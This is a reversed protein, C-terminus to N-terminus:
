RTGARASRRPSSAPSRSLRAQGFVDASSPARGSRSRPPPMVRSKQRGAKRLFPSRSTRLSAAISASLRRPLTSGRMSSATWTSGFWHGSPHPSRSAASREIADLADGIARPLRRPPALAARRASRGPCAGEPERGLAVSLQHHSIALPSTLLTRRVSATGRARAPLVVHRADHRARQWRGAPRCQDCSGDRVRPARRSPPTRSASRLGHGDAARGM